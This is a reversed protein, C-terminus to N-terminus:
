LAFGKVSMLIFYYILKPKKTRKNKDLSYYFSQNDMPHYLKKRIKKINDESSSGGFCTILKIIDTVLIM